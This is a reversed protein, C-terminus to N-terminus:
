LVNMGIAVLVRLFQSYRPFMEFTAVATACSTTARDHGLTIEVMAHIESCGTVLPKFQLRLETAQRGRYYSRETGLAWPISPRPKAIHSPSQAQLRAADKQDLVVSRPHYRAAVLGVTITACHCHDSATKSVAVYRRDAGRVEFRCTMVEGYIIQSLCSIFM